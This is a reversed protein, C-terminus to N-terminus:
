EQKKKELWRSGKRDGQGIGDVWMNNYGIEVKMGEKRIAFAQKRVIEKDEKREREM